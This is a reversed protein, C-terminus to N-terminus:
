IFCLRCFRLQLYITFFLIFVVIAHLVFYYSYMDCNLSHFITLEVTMRM